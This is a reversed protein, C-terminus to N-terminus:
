CKFGEAFRNNQKDRVGIGFENRLVDFNCMPYRCHRTASKTYVKTNNNYQNYISLCKRVTNVRSELTGICNNSNTNYM